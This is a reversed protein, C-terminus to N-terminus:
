NVIGTKLAYKILEAANKSGTKELIKRRYTDITHRSLHLEEGIQKSNLGQALLKVIEFERKSLNSLHQAQFRNLTQKLEDIDVPKLLYDFAQTKIAKIAYHEHASVFVIHTNLNHRNIEEAIELGSIGAMEVDLLVLDPELNLIGQMAREAQEYSSIVEVEKVTKLLIKLRTIARPEDDVLVLRIKQTKGV